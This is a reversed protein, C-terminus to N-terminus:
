TCYTHVHYRSKEDFSKTVIMKAISESFLSRVIGRNKEGKGKKGGGAQTTTSPVRHRAQKRRTLLTAVCGQQYM